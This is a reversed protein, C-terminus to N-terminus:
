FLFYINQSVNQLKCCSLALIVLNIKRELQKGTLRYLLLNAIDNLKIIEHTCKAIRYGAFLQKAKVIQPVRHITPSYSCNSNGHMASHHEQSTLHNARSMETFIDQTCNLEFGFNANLTKSPWYERPLQQLSIIAFSICFKIIKRNMGGKKHLATYVLSVTAKCTSLLFSDSM